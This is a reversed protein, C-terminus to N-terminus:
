TPLVRDIEAVVSPSVGHFFTPPAMFFIKTVGRQFQAPFAILTKAWM